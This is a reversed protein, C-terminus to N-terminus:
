PQTILLHAGVSDTLIIIVYSSSTGLRNSSHTVLVEVLGRVKGGAVSRSKSHYM